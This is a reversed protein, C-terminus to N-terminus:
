IINEYTYEEKYLLMKSKVLMYLFKSCNSAAEFASVQSSPYSLVLVPDAPLPSQCVWTGSALGGLRGVGAVGGPEKSTPTCMMSTYASRDAWTAADTFSVTANRRRSRQGRTTAMATSSCTMAM